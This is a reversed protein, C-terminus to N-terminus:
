SRYAGGPMRGTEKGDTKTNKKAASFGQERTKKNEGGDKDNSVIAFHDFCNTPNHALKM